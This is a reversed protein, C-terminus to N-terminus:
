GPDGPRHGRRGAVTEAPGNVPDFDDFSCRFAYKGSGIDLRMPSTSGPGLEGAARRTWVGRVKAAPRAMVMPAPEHAVRM